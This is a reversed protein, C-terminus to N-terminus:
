AVGPTVAQTYAKYFFYFTHSASDTNHLRIFHVRTNTEDFSLAWDVWQETFMAYIPSNAPILTGVPYEYGYNGNTDDALSDIVISYLRDWLTLTPSAPQVTIAFTATKGAAITASGSITDPGAGSPITGIAIPRRLSIDKTGM